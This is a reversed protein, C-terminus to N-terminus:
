KLELNINEDGAKYPLYNLICQFMEDTTKMSINEERIFKPPDFPNNPNNSTNDYVGIAVIESGEEVKLMKPFSYVYQWRFDWRPIRIIPVTDGNPKIIFALFSVGLLHMHPNVNLLSIDSTVKLRSSFTVISDAPINLAPVVPAVGLTGLIVERIPREPAIKDFYLLFKSKDKEPKSTPGYHMNKVYVAGKEKLYYGGIGEPYDFPEMGPLYNSVSPTLLPYTGDDNLLNLARHIQVPNGEQEQDLLWNGEKPNRKANKPYQVLHANLHHVVKRNGPVFVMKKLFTDSPLVYALKMAMFRDLNDGPLLISDPMEIVLDPPALEEYTKFVPIEPMAQPNGEALGSKVWQRITAIEEESLLREGIFHRYEPDAPWPPMIKNSTVYRIMKAKRKVQAYTELPFPASGQLHHCPLCHRILIPAIHETFTPKEPISLEKEKSETCACVFFLICIGILFSISYRKNELGKRM